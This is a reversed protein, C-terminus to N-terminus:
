YLRLHPGRWLSMVGTHSGRDEDAGQGLLFASVQGGAKTGRIRKDLPAALDDQGAGLPLSGRDDGLRQAAVALGDAGGDM